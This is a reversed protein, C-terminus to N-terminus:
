DLIRNVPFEVVLLPHVWTIPSVTVKEPLELRCDLQVLAPVRVMSVFSVTAITSYRGVLWDLASRCMPPRGNILRISLKRKSGPLVPEIGVVHRSRLGVQGYNWNLRGHPEFV